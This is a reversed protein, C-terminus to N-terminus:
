KLMRQNELITCDVGLFVINQQIELHSKDGYMLIVGGSIM